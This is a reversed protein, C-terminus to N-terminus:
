YILYFEIKLIGEILVNIVPSKGTRKAVEINNIDQNKDNSIDESLPNKAQNV